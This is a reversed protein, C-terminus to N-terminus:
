FRLAHQIFKLVKGGIREVSLRDKLGLANQGLSERLDKNQILEQLTETLKSIDDNKVVLGSKGPELIEEWPISDFCVVPLGAAMAECLSNPFGELVSPLVYFSARAYLQDVEDVKGPFIIDNELNLQMALEQMPKLLPGSGAMLLKWGQRDELDSYARILREPGKEWAFRGVYLIIKERKVDPFSKIERIANPIVQINLKNGFKKRKYNAARQTQAIFGASRPYLWRKMLPIPFRFKYDPSTRDSIFVPYNTGYLALLILPSFSDGFALLVDPNIKKVENRIFGLMRSYFVLKNLISASRIFDPEILTIREDLQYFHEGALCSVFSVKLGRAAFDNALVVMAQEIGGLKLSPSVLCINEPKKEEM